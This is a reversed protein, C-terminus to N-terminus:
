QKNIYVTSVFCASVNLAKQINKKSKEADDSLFAFNIGGSKIWYNSLRNSDKNVRRIQTALGGVANKEDIINYQTFVHLQANTSSDRDEFRIDGKKHNYPVVDIPIKNDQFIKKIRDALYNAMEKNNASYINSRELEMSSIIDTPVIVELTKVGKLIEPTDPFFVHEAINKDGCGVPNKMDTGPGVAYANQLCTFLACLFILLKIM